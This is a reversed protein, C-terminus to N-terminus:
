AIWMVIGIQVCAPTLLPLLKEMRLVPTYSDRTDIYSEGLAFSGGELDEPESIHYPLVNVYGVSGWCWEVVCFTMDFPKLHSEDSGWYEPPGVLVVQVCKATYKQGESLLYQSYRM